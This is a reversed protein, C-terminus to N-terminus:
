RKVNPHGDVPIEVPNNLKIIMRSSFIFKVVLYLRLREFYQGTLFYILKVFENAVAKQMADFCM